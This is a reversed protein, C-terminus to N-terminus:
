RSYMERLTQNNAIKCKATIHLHELEPLSIDNIKLNGNVPFGIRDLENILFLKREKAKSPM